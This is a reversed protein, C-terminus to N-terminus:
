PCPLTADFMKSPSAGGAGGGGGGFRVGGNGGPQHQDNNMGVVDQGFPHASAATRCLIAMRRTVVASNSSSTDRSRTACKAVVSWHPQGCTVGIQNTHDPPTICVALSVSPGWGSQM